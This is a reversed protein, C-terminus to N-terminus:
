DCINKASFRGSNTETRTCIRDPETLRKPERECIAFALAGSSVCWRMSAASSVHTARIRSALLGGRWPVGEVRWVGGEGEVSWRGGKVKLGGGEVRM